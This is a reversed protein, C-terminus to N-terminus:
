LNENPESKEAHYNVLILTSLNFTVGSAALEFRLHVDYFYVM